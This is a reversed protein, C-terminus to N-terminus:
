YGMAYNEPVPSVGGMLVGTRPHVVIAKVSGVGRAGRLEVKHGRRALEDRVRAPVAAPVNLAGETEHPNTSARFSTSVVASTELAQQVDMGFETLNLFFQLQTQPQTDGGPTGFALFPKGNKLAIQPNITHRVRKGPALASVDEPDLAFYRMRNNLLFGAGEVTMGSGFPNNLSSTLSVMNRDKDVVALYTTLTLVQEDDPPWVVSSVRTPTAYTPAFLAARMGAPDGPPPEGALARNPEILSRRAAAYETSLMARM